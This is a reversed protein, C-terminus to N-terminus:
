DDAADRYVVRYVYGMLIAASIARQLLMAVAAGLAGHSRILAIGLGLTLALAIAQVTTEVQPKHISYLVTRAPLAAITFLISVFLVTFVPAAELYEPKHLRILPKAALPALVAIPIFCAMVAYTRRLLKKFEQKTLLRSTRPIYVTTMTTSIVSLVSALKDGYAYFGVETLTALKALLIANLRYRVTALVNTVWVWRGFKFVRSLAEGGGGGARLFGHPLLWAALCCAVLPALAHLGQCRLATLGDRWWMLGVGLAIVTPMGLSFIANREFELRAKFYSEYFRVLHNGLVGVFAVRLYPTVQPQDLLGALWPALLYGVAAVVLGSAIKFLFVARLLDASAQDDDRRIAKSVFRVVGINLGFDSAHMAIEYATFALFFLAYGEVSLARTMLVFAVLGIVRRAGHGVFAVSLDRLM